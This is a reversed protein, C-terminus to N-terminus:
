QKSMALRDGTIIIVLPYVFKRRIPISVIYPIISDSSKCNVPSEFHNHLIYNGVSVRYTFSLSVLYLVHVYRYLSSVLELAEPTLPHTCTSTHFEWYRNCWLRNRHLCIMRDGKGTIYVGSNRM